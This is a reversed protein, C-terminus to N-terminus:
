VQEIYMYGFKDHHSEMSVPTVLALKGDIIHHRELSISSRPSSIWVVTDYGRLFQFLCIVMLMM